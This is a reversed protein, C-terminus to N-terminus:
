SQEHRSREAPSPTLRFLRFQRNAALRQAIAYNPWHAVITNWAADRHNGTLQQVDVTFQERRRRVTARQASQLNATWSPHAPCGWNSGVLLMSDGDPVYQVTATRSLGSKRGPVTIQACPLGALDLVGFQGRTIWRLM